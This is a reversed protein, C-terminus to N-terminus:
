KIREVNNHWIDVVKRKQIKARAQSIIEHDLNEEIPPNRGIEMSRGWTRPLLFWLAIPDRNFKVWRCTKDHEKMYDELGVHSESTNKSYIDVMVEQAPIFWYYWRM